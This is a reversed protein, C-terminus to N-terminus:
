LVVASAPIQRRRKAEAEIMALVTSEGRQWAVESAITRGGRTESMWVFYAAEECMHHLARAILLDVALVLAKSLAAIEAPTAGGLAGHVCANRTTTAVQLCRKANARSAASPVVGVVDEIFATANLGAEDLMFYQARLEDGMISTSLCPARLVQAVTRVVAEFTLVLYTLEAHSTPLQHSLWHVLGITFVRGVTPCFVTLFRTMQQMWGHPDPGDLGTRLSSAFACDAATPALRAMWHFDGSALGAAGVDRDVAMLAEICVTAVSEPLYPDPGAAVRAAQGSAVLVREYRKSDIDILSGHAVRNRLGGAAADYLAAVLASTQHSLPLQTAWNM